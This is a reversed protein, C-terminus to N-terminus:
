RGAGRAAAADRRAVLARSHPRPGRHRTPDDAHPVGRIPPRRARGSPPLLPAPGRTAGGPAPSTARAAPRRTLRRDRRVHAVELDARRLARRLDALADDIQADTVVLPPIWRIVNEFTGCTLLLLREELCARQV